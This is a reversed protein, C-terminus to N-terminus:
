RLRSRIQMKLDSVRKQVGYLSVVSPSVRRSTDAPFELLVRFATVDHVPSNMVGSTGAFLIRMLRFTEPSSRGIIEDRSEMWRDHGKKAWLHYNRRDNWIASIEFPSHTLASIFEPMYVMRFTGPWVYKTIFSSTAVPETAAAFDLYVKGGPKLWQAIREVVRPYDSLDEIVGMMSIADFPAEPEYTFFDQYKAEADLKEERICNQTFELQDRSLTIGTVRAGRRCSFRTMGGWGCGVELLHKGSGLRLQDFAFALKREAGVEMSDDDSDYIGPTYTHYDRDQAYFQINGSDYHKAIWGPNLKERGGSVYPQVRRWIKLALQHDSLANRVLSLAHVLDGDLDLDGRIYAESIPLEDLTGLAEAGRDNHVVICLAAPSGDSITQGNPLRISLSFGIDKARRVFSELGIM